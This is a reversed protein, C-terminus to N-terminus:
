TVSSLWVKDQDPLWTETVLCLDAKVDSLHYLLLTDKNVYHNFIQYWWPYM